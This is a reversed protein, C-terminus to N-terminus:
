EQGLRKSLYLDNMKSATEEASFCHKVHAYGKEILELRLKTDQIKDMANRLGKVDGWELSIGGPGMAESMASNATTIVPKKRYLAEIIPIGFGEYQSPLLLAICRDYYEYLEENSVRGIFDFKSELGLKNVLHQCQQLYDHGQGIVVVKRRSGEPQDHVANIIHILGKRPIISGVFLFYEETQLNLKHNVFSESLSQYITTIKEPSINYVYELDEKTQNSVTIIHDSRKASSRYKFQYLKTDLWGFLRPKKEYILDHFTTIKVIEQNMGFPIEHSLGHYIDLNLQNVIFSQRLSRWLIRELSSQPYHIIFPSELFPATEKCKVVKPTFLHYEHHPYLKQLNSVLTRSYNGLGTFNNFLRKADFGIKLRKYDDSSTVICSKKKM